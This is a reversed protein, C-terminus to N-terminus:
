SVKPPYITFTYNGLQTVPYDEIDPYLEGTSMDLVYEDDNSDFSHVKMMVSAEGTDPATSIFVDGYNLDDYSFIMSEKDAFEIKM